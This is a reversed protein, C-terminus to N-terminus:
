GHGSVRLFIMAATPCKFRGLTRTRGDIQATAKWKNRSAEYRVGRYVSGAPLPMNRNKLNVSATVCRLNEIRNDDRTRNIHDIQMGDPPVRGHFLFWIIRHAAFKCVKTRSVRVSIQIYGTSIRYGALTGTGRWYLHGDRYFVLAAAEEINM